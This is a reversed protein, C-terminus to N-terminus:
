GGTDLHYCHHDNKEVHRRTVAFRDARPAPDPLRGAQGDGGHTRVSHGGELQRDQIIEARLEGSPRDLSTIQVTEQMPPAEPDIDPEDEKQKLGLPIPLAINLPISGLHRNALPM